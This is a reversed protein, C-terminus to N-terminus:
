RDDGATLLIQQVDLYGSRFGAESYALYFEWLRRFRPSDAPPPLSDAVALFTERWIRLTEAYHPGFRHRKRVSLGATRAAETIAETSPLMGGPFVYKQIWTYTHLTALMRDHPMTIAQLAIRGGPACLRALAAFYEEWHAAGVAEIMEVSVVADYRGAVNRYDLLDITVAHSLGAEAIRRRALDRQEVSLTVSRVVAGRQAARRCLEGWGTGIELVRTGPGVAAADLLRDIKARQAAALAGPRPRGPAPARTVGRDVDPLATASFLAGSYTLTEDLFGAFLENSLDYHHSVNAQVHEPTGSETSPRAAATLPRLRQIWGPVLTPMHAALATLAAAPDPSDWEGNVFAEGFGILRDTGIRRAVADAGHVIIAPGTPLPACSEVLAVGSRAAARAALVRVAWGLVRARLGAPVPEDPVPFSTAATGADASVLGGDM